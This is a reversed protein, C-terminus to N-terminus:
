IPRKGTWSIPDVETDWERYRAVLDELEDTVLALTESLFTEASLWITTARTLERM